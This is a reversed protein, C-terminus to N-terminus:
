AEEELASQRTLAPGTGEVEGASWRKAIESSTLVEKLFHSPFPLVCFYYGTMKKM